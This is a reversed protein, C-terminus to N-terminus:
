DGWEVFGALLVVGGPHTKFCVKGLNTYSHSAGEEHTLSCCRKDCELRDYYVRMAPSNPYNKVSKSERRLKAIVAKSGYYVSKSDCNDDCIGATYEWTVASRVPILEEVSDLKGSKLASVFKATLKDLKPKEISIGRTLEDFLPKNWQSEWEKDTRAHVLQGICEPCAKARLQALVALGKPSQESMNYACALNYRALLQGPDAQLSEIYIKEAAGYEKRRHLGLAKVNLKRSKSMNATSVADFSLAPIDLEPLSDLTLAQKGSEAGEGQKM